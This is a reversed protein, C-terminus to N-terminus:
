PSSEPNLDGCTNKKKENRGDVYCLRKEVRM